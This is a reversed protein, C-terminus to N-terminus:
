ASSMYQLLVVKWGIETAVPASFRGVRLLQLCAWGALATALMILWCTRKPANSPMAHFLPHFALRTNFTLIMHSIWYYPPLIGFATIPWIELM